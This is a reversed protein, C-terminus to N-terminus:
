LMKPEMSTQRSTNMPNYEAKDIQKLAAAHIVYDIGILALDLRDKDRNDGLFYRLFKYKSTSIQM